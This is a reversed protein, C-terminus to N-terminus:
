VDFIENKPNIDQKHFDIFDEKTGFWDILEKRLLSTPANSLISNYSDFSWDGISKSIQHHVPNKHIYWVYNTFDSEKNVISRKIYDMFLAGKRNNIKNFSKTYSNLFNSFREMIFGSINDSLQNFERKKIFNFQQIIAKEENILLLLHFHNPILAYCYIKCVSSTHQKLKRLFFTYNDKNNFLKEQGVARSFMHYVQGPLLPQHYKSM